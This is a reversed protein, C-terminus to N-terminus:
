LHTTLDPSQVILFDHSEILRHQHKQTQGRRRPRPSFPLLISKHCPLSERGHRFVSNVASADGHGIVFKKIKVAQIEQRKM